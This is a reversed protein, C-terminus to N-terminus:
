TIDTEYNQFPSVIGSKYLISKEKVSYKKRVIISKTKCHFPLTVASAATLVFSPLFYM